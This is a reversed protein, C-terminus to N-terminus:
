SSTSGGMASGHPSQMSAPYPEMGPQMAGAAAGAYVGPNGMGLGTPLGAMGAAMAPMPMPGMGSGGFRHMGQPPAYGQMPAMGPGMPSGGPNGHPDVAYGGSFDPYDATGGVSAKGAENGRAM